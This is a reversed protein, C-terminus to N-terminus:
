KHQRRVVSPPQSKAKLSNGIQKGDLLHRELAAAGLNVHFTILALASERRIESLLPATWYRPLRKHATCSDVVPRPM